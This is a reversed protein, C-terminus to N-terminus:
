KGGTLYKKLDSGKVYYRNFVRRSPFTNRKIHGLIASYSLEVLNSVEVVTYDKEPNIEEIIKNFNM